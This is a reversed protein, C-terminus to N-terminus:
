FAHDLVDIKAVHLSVCNSNADIEIRNLAGTGILKTPKPYTLPVERVNGRAVIRLSCKWDGVQFDDLQLGAYSKTCFWGKDYLVLDKDFLQRTLDPKNGKALKIEQVKDKDKLLLFIDIDSYDGCPVGRLISIGELFFRVGEVRLVKLVVFPEMSPNDPAVFQRYKIETNELKPALGMSTLHVLAIVPSVIHRNVQNHRTIFASNAMILNFNTFKDFLGLNPAVETKYQPDALSTFLYINKESCANAAATAIFHNLGEQLAEVGEIDLDGMMHRFAYLWDQEVYSGIYFQPVCSIINKYDYKLGYYLAASGGKSGGLFTCDASSLGLEQVVRQILAIVVPEINLKGKACLYYSEGGFFVDKIWLVEAPCDSLTNEYNYTPKGDGSFGSFVVVLHKTDYRASKRMYKIEIGHIIVTREALM